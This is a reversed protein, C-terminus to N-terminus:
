SAGPSAPCARAAQAHDGSTCRRNSLTVPGSGGAALLAGDSSFAVGGIAAALTNAQAQASGVAPLESGFPEESAAGMLQVRGRVDAASARTEGAGPDDTPGAADRPAGRPRAHV